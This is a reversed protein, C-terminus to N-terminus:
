LASFFSVSSSDRVLFTILLVLNQRPFLTCTNSCQTPGQAHDKKAVQRLTELFVLLPKGLIAVKLCQEFEQVCSRSSQSFMRGRTFMEYM